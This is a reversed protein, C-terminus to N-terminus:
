KGTKTVNTKLNKLMAGASDSYQKIEDPFVMRISSPLSEAQCAAGQCAQSQGRNKNNTVRRCYTAATGPSDNM